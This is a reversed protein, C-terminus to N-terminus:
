EGDGDDALKAGGQAKRKLGARKSGGGEDDDKAKRPVAETETPAVKSAKFKKLKEKTRGIAERNERAIEDVETLDVNGVKSRDISDFDSADDYTVTRGVAPLIGQSYKVLLEEISYAENPVTM